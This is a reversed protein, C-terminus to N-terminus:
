LPRQRGGAGDTYTVRIPDQGEDPVIYYLNEGDETEGAYDFRWGRMGEDSTTGAIEIAEIQEVSLEGFSESLEVTFLPTPLTNNDSIVQGNEGVVAEYGADGGMYITIDAPTVTIGYEDVTVEEEGTPDDGPEDGPLDVTATNTITKGADAAVVTYSATITVTGEPALGSIIIKGDEVTYGEGANITLTGEGTISDTVTTNLAVEGTNKVSIEYNLVDGVLAKFGEPIETVTEGDREYSVLQKDVSASTTGARFSATFVYIRGGEATFAYDLGASSSVENDEHTWNVFVNGAAPTATSDATVTDKYM